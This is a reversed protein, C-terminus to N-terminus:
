AFVLRVELIKQTSSSLGRVQHNWLPYILFGEQRWLSLKIYPYNNCKHSIRGQYLCILPHNCRSEATSSGGIDPKQHFSTIVNEIKL